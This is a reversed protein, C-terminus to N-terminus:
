NFIFLFFKRSLATGQDNPNEALIPEDANLEKFWFKAALALDNESNMESVLIMNEEVVQDSIPKNKQGNSNEALISEEANM